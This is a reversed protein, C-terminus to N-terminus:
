QYHAPRVGVVDKVTSKLYVTAVISGAKLSVSVIDDAKIKDSSAAIKGAIATKMDNRTAKSLDDLTGPFTITFRPNMTLNTTPTETPM